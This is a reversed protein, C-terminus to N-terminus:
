PSTLFQGQGHWLSPFQPGSITCTPSELQWLEWTLGLPPSLRCPQLRGLSPSRGEKRAWGQGLCSRLGTRYSGWPTNLFRVEVHNWGAPEVANATATVLGIPIGTEMQSAPGLGLLSLVVQPLRLMPLSVQSILEPAAM